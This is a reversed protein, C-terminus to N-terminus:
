ALHGLWKLRRPTIKSSILESDGWRERLDANSFHDKRQQQRSVSLIVRLCRHHFRDVLELDRLPTWCESGYLLVSLICATYLRRKITLSLHHDLFLKRLSGFATSAQGIRQQVDSRSCDDPTILALTHFFSWM